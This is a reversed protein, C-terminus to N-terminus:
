GSFRPTDCTRSYFPFFFFAFYFNRKMDSPIKERSNITVSILLKPLKRHVYLHTHM